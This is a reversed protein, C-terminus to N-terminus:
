WIGPVLRYHVKQSYAEYGELEDHLKRDELFTRYIGLIGLFVVPVYAWMSDLVLPTAVLSIMSGAYGPHRVYRYPGDQVVQHHPQIRVVASFYANTIMAWGTILFGIILIIVAVLQFSPSIQMTWSFRKDLGAIVYLILPGPIVSFFVIIRDAKNDSEGKMFRAREEIVQPNILALVVRTILTFSTTIAVFIWAMVWHVTGAAVFLILPTIVMYLLFGIIAEWGIKRLISHSNMM